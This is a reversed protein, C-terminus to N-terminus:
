KDLRSNTGVGSRQAIASVVTRAFSEAGIEASFREEVTRRGARGLRDRLDPSAALSDFAEVWQDPTSAVIGNVGNNVIQTNVGVPSVVVPRGTAMFQLAKLGCKGRSFEDDPLPMIGIHTAGLESVEERESWTVFETDVGEFPRDPARNCIVRLRVKRRAGLVRLADRVHELHVLTSISGSWTIVLPSEADLAPQVRYQNLDVTTPVVHVNGSHRKAYSALHDNGVAVAAALRCITATKGPFHLRSFVGNVGGVGQMWIADDFDLILPVGARALLREYLAPGLLAAERYIVAADYNRAKALVERRRLSDRLLLAAKAIRRGRQHIVASLAESEFVSFDIAIGHRSRLIPAWQELRFRQGPAVGLPRSVLALLRIM